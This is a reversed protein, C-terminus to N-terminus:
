ERSFDALRTVATDIIDVVERSPARFNNALIAFGLREGDRTDVYGALARVGTKTGTKARVNGAATTNRMRAALTGNRGAVPLTREFNTRHQPDRQMQGLVAVLTEATVLNFPSLGSGDAILFQNRDLGWSRLADTVAAVGESASHQASALGLTRLLSEAYLNQSDKMMGVAIDSLPRSRHRILVPDVRQLDPRTEAPLHDIDVAEGVVTIGNRILTQRLAAVFFITPNDVAVDRSVPPAGAPIVGRLVLDSPGPLRRLTLALATDTEGTLVHTDLELGSIPDLYVEASEGPNDAPRITLEAVNEHHQLAGVPAAFGFGLDDWGWGPGWGTWIDDDFASDDGVIRGDVRVVGAALLEAAWVDFLDVDTDPANITPDGSSRVVLDGTVVGQRVPTTAFLETEYRSDWGLRDAAAALTLIKVTSAPELPTRANRTYLTEERDFSWVHVGWIAHAVSPRGFLDNLDHALGRVAPPADAQPSPSESVTSPQSSAGVVLAGLLAFVLLHTAAGRQAATVSRTRPSLGAANSRRHM